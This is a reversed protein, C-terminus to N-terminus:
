RRALAPRNNFSGALSQQVSSGPRSVEGAVMDGIVVEIRRNGRSDTTEKTTAKESGFNNVVVDVNSGGGGSRVGLNGNSDRKLPMIAEPGAEGMMGTGKAFKFLTPSNVISNTFMGGKAFTTLGADFAGGKAFGLSGPLENGGMDNKFGGAFGFKQGIFNMLGPKFAAYAMKSQEQLEYRILGEIMSDILSKFNLKGTKTFEIIANGMEDFSQRFVEGYAVQRETLSQTLDLATKRGQNVISLAKAQADFSKEAATKQAELSKVDGDPTMMAKAILGEIEELKDARAKQLSLESQAISNALTNQENIRKQSEAQQGYIMGLSVRANFIEQDASLQAATIKLADDQSQFVIDKLIKEKSIRQDILRLSQQLGANDKEAQQKELVLDKIKTTRNISDQDTSDRANAIADEASKLEVEQKGQLTLNELKFIALTNQETMAGTISNVVNLRALEQQTVGEQASRLKDLDALQGARQSRKGEIANAGRQAEVGTRNATQAAIAMDVASQRLKLRSDIDANGTSEFKMKGSRKSGAAMNELGEKFIKAAVYEAALIAKDSGEPANAIAALANSEDISAKLQTNAIILDVNTDIARLQIKLEQDKIKTSAIAAAEGTMGGVKAQAITLAAKESAQGLATSILQQAKNYAANAGENFITKAKEFVGPDFQGAAQGALRRSESNTELKAQYEKQKLLNYNTKMGQAILGDTVRLKEKIDLDEQDLKNLAHKYTAQAEFTTKYEARIDTFATVVEKGFLQFKEPNDALDKFAANLDNVNGTLVKGMANSVDLLSQGLKFLPNNSATSQIFEQYAKNSAETATKFAQLNNSSTGLIATLKKQAVGYKDIVPTGKEFAKTLSETDFNNVGLAESLIQKAEDTRGAEAFLKLSDQVTTSLDKALNKDIGGGFFKAIDNKWTDYPSKAMAAKLKTASDIATQTTNNVEIMANSLAFIGQITASAFPVKDLLELTRKVNDSSDKIGQLSKEFAETEKGTKSMWSDFLGVAEIAIGIAMGWIGFASILSGLKQGVIGIVGAVRTYGAQLMGMKGTSEIIAKGNEDIRTTTRLTGERAKAIEENLKAYAARSGYIAQTEATTSRISDSALKNLVRKNIIDNSGATTYGPETGKIVRESVETGAAAAGARIARIEAIHLKLRKSEEADRSALYKARTDLSKIEEPTMAFPDKAGLEAFDKRGKSFTKARQELEAIKARTPASKKYALEASAGAATALDSIKDQQDKYIQTFTMRSQNAADKLNERYHGLAPIATRLISVGVASIVALLATPNQSLVNVLPTLVKNVIELAGQGLNQLSALLRDYPNSSIDIAGFKDLGEKLVATAFAQRKEFDSLSGATKGVSRAYDQTAKDIKTFLGLEDLLEPELKSIGRTLRSIADPMAVGLAKSAKNAVQGLQEMQKGSLGAATGKTTAEIAERFSIAGDTATVLNKAITGLNQGSAAGLQNMGQIMNTTDAAQSLARFAAGAAFVNAAYTAYLRVLGDLGRAQNAFDRGSAGTAGASGRAVDYENGGMMANKWGGKGGRNAKDTLKIISDLSGRFADADKKSSKLTSGVDQLSFELVYRQNAMYM